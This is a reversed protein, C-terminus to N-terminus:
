FKPNGNDTVVEAEVTNVDEEAVNDSDDVEYNASNEALEKIWGEVAVLEEKTINRGSSVKKVYYDYEDQVFDTSLTFVRAYSPLKSVKKMKFFLNKLKNGESASSRKFDVIYPFAVGEKVEDVLLVYFRYILDPKLLQDFTIGEREMKDLVAQPLNKPGWMGEKRINPCDVYDTITLYEKKVDKGKKIEYDWQWLKVDTMVFMELSNGMDMKEISNIFNGAPVNETNFSGKTMQQILTLKPIRFDDADMTDGASNLSPDFMEQFENSVAYDKKVELENKKTTM